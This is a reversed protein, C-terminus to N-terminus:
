NGIERTATPVVRGRRGRRLVLQTENRSDKDKIRPPAIRPEPSSEPYAIYNHSGSAESEVGSPTQRHEPNRDTARLRCLEDSWRSPNDEWWGQKLHGTGLLWLIDDCQHGEWTSLPEFTMEGMFGQVSNSTSIVQCRRMVKVLCDDLVEVHWIINREQRCTIMMSHRIPKDRLIYPDTIKHKHASCLLDAIEKLREQIDGLSPTSPQLLRDNSM